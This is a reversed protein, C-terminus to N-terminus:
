QTACRYCSDFLISTIYVFHLHGETKNTASFAFGRRGGGGKETLCAFGSDVHEIIVSRGKLLEKLFLVGFSRTLFARHVDM